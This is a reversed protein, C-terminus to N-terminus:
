EITPTYLKRHLGWKKAAEEEALCVLKTLAQENSFIM